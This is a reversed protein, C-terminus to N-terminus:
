DSSHPPVAAWSAAGVEGGTLTEIALALELSPRRDGRCLRDLHTRTVELEEAVEERSKGVEDIWRSLATERKRPRGRGAKKKPGMPIIKEILWQRILSSPIFFCFFARRRRRGQPDTHAVRLTTWPATPM